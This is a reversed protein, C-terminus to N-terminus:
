IIELKKIKLLQESIKKPVKREFIFAYNKNFLAQRILWNFFVMFLFCQSVMAATIVTIKNASKTKERGFFSLADSVAVTIRPGKSIRTYEVPCNSDSFESLM